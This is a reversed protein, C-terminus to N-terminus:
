DLRLRLNQVASQEQTKHHLLDPLQDDTCDHGGVHGEVEAQSCVELVMCTREECLMNMVNLCRKNIEPFIGELKLNIENFKESFGKQIQIYGKSRKSQKNSHEVAYM